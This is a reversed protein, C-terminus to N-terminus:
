LDSIDVNVNYTKWFFNTDLYKSDDINKKISEETM